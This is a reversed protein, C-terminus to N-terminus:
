IKKLNRIVKCPVGVAVVDSPIDKTVVSGAGITTNDGITVGPCIICGGGLWVNNGIRIKKAFEIGKIREEAELPHGPTYIQVKPGCMVNDGIVVDACDLIVCDFNMYFNKGVYINSGYDCFFPPEIKIGESAKGFLEKLVQSRLEQEDETSFNYKRLQIKAQKRLEVLEKDSSDYDEEDIMKQKNTKVSNKNKDSIDEM